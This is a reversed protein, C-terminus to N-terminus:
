KNLYSSIGKKKNKLQETLNEEYNVNNDDDGDFNENEENNESAGDIKMTMM